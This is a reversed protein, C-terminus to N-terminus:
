GRRCGYDKLEHLSDGRARSAADLIPREGNAAAHAHEMRRGGTESM